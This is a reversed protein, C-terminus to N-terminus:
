RAIDALLVLEKVTDENVDTLTHVTLGYNQAEAGFIDSCHVNIKVDSGLSQNVYVHLTQLQELFAMFENTSRGLVLINLENFSRLQERAETYMSGNVIPM